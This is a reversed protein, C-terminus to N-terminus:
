KVSIHLFFFSDVSFKQHAIWFTQKFLFDNTPRIRYISLTLFFNYIKLLSNWFKKSLVGVSHM